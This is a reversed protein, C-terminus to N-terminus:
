HLKNWPARYALKPLKTRCLARYCFCCFPPSSGHITMVREGEEDVRSLELLNGYCPERYYAKIRAEDEGSSFVAFFLALSYALHMVILMTM